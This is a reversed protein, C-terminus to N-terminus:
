EFNCKLNYNKSVRKDLADEDDDEETSNNLGHQNKYKELIANYRITLNALTETAKKEVEDEIPSEYDDYALIRSNYDLIEREVPEEDIPLFGDPIKSSLPKSLAFRFIILLIILRGIEKLLKM